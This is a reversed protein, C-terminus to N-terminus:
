VGHKSAGMGWCTYVTVGDVLEMEKAPNALQWTTKKREGHGRESFLDTDAKIDWAAVNGTIGEPSDTQIICQM